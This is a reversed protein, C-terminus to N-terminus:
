GFAISYLIHINYQMMFPIIIIIIIQFFQIYKRNLVYGNCFLMVCMLMHVPEILLLNCLLCVCCRALIVFCSLIRNFAWHVRITFGFSHGNPWQIKSGISTYNLISTHSLLGEKWGVSYGSTTNVLM